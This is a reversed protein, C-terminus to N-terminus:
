KRLISQWSIDCGKKVKEKRFRLEMADCEYYSHFVTFFSQLTEMAALMQEATTARYITKWDSPDGEKKLCVEILFVTNDEHVNM